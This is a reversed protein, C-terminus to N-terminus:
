FQTGENGDKGVVSLLIGKHKGKLFTGDVMLMPRCHKFGDLSAAFAFFVVDLGTIRVLMMILTAVRIQGIPRM